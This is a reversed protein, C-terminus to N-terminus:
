SSTGWKGEKLRVDAAELDNAIERLRKVHQAVSRGDPASLDGPVMVSPLDASIVLYHSSALRYVVNM